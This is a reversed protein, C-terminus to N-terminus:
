AAETLKTDIKTLLNLAEKM